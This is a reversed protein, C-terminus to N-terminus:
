VYDNHDIHELVATDEGVWLMLVSDVTYYGGPGIQFHLEYGLQAYSTATENPNNIIRTAKTCYGERSATGTNTICAYAVNRLSYQSEREQYATIHKSGWRGSRLTGEIQM